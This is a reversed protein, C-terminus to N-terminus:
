LSKNARGVSISKASVASTTKSQITTVKKLGKLGDATEARCTSKRAEIAGGKCPNEILRYKYPLLKTQM